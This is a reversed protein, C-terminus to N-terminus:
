DWWNIDLNHCIPMEIVDREQVISLYWEPRNIYLFRVDLDSDISPFGWARSGAECAYLVKVDFEHEIRLLESLVSEKMPRREM